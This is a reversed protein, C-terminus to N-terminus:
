LQYHKGPEPYVLWVNEGIELYICEHSIACAIAELFEVLTGIRERGEFAVKFQTYVGDFSNHWYGKIDSTTIQYASFNTSLFAEIRGLLTRSGCQMDLKDNPILFNAARGINKIM